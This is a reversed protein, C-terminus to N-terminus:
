DITLGYTYPTNVYSMYMIQTQCMDPICVIYIAIYIYIYIYICPRKEVAEYVGSVPSHRLSIAPYYSAFIYYLMYM